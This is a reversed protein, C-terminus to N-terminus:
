EEATCMRRYKRWYETKINSIYLFCPIRFKIILFYCFKSYMFTFTMNITNTYPVRLVFSLLQLHLIQFFRYSSALWRVNKYTSYKKTRSNFRSPSLDMKLWPHESIGELNLREDADFKLCETILDKAKGGTFM